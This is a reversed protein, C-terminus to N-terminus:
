LLNEEIEQMHRPLREHSYYLMRLDFHGKGLHQYGLTYRTQVNYCFENYM